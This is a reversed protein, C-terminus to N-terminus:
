LTYFDLNNNKEQLLKFEKEWKERTEQNRFLVLHVEEGQEETLLIKEGRAEKM